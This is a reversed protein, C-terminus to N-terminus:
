HWTAVDGIPRRVSRAVKFAEPLNGVAIMMICVEWEPIGAVVRVERDAGSDNSMNLCCTALGLSHLALILSMSYLGGDIWCQNREGVTVFWRLDATVLLVHSAQDGFGRNGNQHKLVRAVQSGAYVHVRWAQRNCVSPTRQALHLAHELQARTAPEPAFHRISHRSLFFDDRRCGVARLIETRTKRLIGGEANTADYRATVTRIAEVRPAIRATIMSDGAQFALYDGLVKQSTVVLSDVGFRRLYSELGDLLDEACEVGFSPRPSRLALAKEIVHYNM